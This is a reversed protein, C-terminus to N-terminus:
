AKIGRSELLNRLGSAELGRVLGYGIVAVSIFSSLSISVIMALWVPLMLGLVDPPPFFTWLYGGVVLGIVLSAGICGALLMGRLKWILLGALLNALAGFIVDVPGLFYYFNGVLAGLSVGVAAPWGLLASLPILCDAVRLQIPGYSIPAFVVVLTAYLAAMVAALSIETVKM